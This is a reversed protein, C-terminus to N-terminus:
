AMGGKRRIRTLMPHSSILTKKGCTDFNVVIIPVNSPIVQVVDGEGFTKHNVRDGVAWDTIGNTKREPPLVPIQPKPKEFPDPADGDDFFSYPKKKVYGPYWGGSRDSYSTSPLKLGAEKIFRSPVAKSDTAYSYDRNSTVYLCKKARTFAVYALRREEELGAGAANEMVSRANPFAGDNMYVVFVHDFELGKAVHITMLSVYNGDNIDDQSSLLNINQLYEELTGDPNEQAYQELDDLLSNVNNARDEEPDEDDTLYKYYGLDEIMRKLVSATTESSDLLEKKAKEMVSVMETLALYSSKSVPLDENAEIASLISQYEGQGREKAFARINDLAVDGFNRRPRNVIREFAVDDDPNTLLTFYAIVDKVEMREYFRLGGFIRYPVRHNKLEMEISRTMYSSRYLIAINRYDSDGGSLKQGRAISVIEGAVWSAEDAARDAVHIKIEAGPDGNTYLDKPVRNKNHSILANAADLITKTSRYNENLIITQAGPYNKEFNIIIKQDAGRWTYITQDPDGVVYVSTASRTLLKMLRFQVENTDQFEDVLLHDFRDSWKAQIDPDLSLIKVAYNLLDDFDLAKCKEKREEYRSYAEYCIKVDRFDNPGVKIDSPYLGKGKQRDIYAFIAKYEPDKRKISLESCVSNLLQKRDDEDFITFGSPYNFSHHEERLFRACFSHFTSINVVPTKGTNKRILSVARDKMEKAAKNTFTIALIRRPDIHHEAILYSIRYTLVRTKGSGAGAVVRVYQSPTTVAELQKENLLKAYDTM